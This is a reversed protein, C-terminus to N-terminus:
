KTMIRGAPRLPGPSATGGSVRSEPGPETAAPWPRSSRPAVCLQGLTTRTLSPKAQLSIRTEDRVLSEQPLGLATCALWTALHVTNEGVCQHPQSGPQIRATNLLLTAQNPQTESTVHSEIKTEGWDTRSNYRHSLLTAVILQISNIPSFFHPLMKKKNHFSFFSLVTWKTTNAKIVVDV